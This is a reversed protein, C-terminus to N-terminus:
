NRHPNCLGCLSNYGYAHDHDKEFARRKADDVARPTRGGEHDASQWPIGRTLAMYIAQALDSPLGYHGAKAAEENEYTIASNVQGLLKLYVDREFKLNIIEEADSRIYVAGNGGVGNKLVVKAAEDFTDYEGSFGRGNAIYQKPMNRM